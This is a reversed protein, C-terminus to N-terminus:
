KGTENTEEMKERFKKTRLWEGVSVPEPPMKDCIKWFYEEAQKLHWLAIERAREETLIKM